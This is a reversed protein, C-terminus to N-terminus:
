KTTTMVYVAPATGSCLPLCDPDYSLLALLSGDPSWAPHMMMGTATAAFGETDLNVAKRAPVDVIIVESSYPACPQNPDECGGGQHSFALHKSDRSWVADWMGWGANPDVIVVELGDASVLMSGCTNNRCGRMLFWSGDPSWSYVDPGEGPATIQLRQGTQLNLLYTTQPDSGYFPTDTAQQNTSYALWQGGPRVAGTWIYPINREEILHGTADITVLKDGGVYGGPAYSVSAIGSARDPSWWRIQSLYTAAAAELTPNQGPVFHIAYGPVFLTNTM